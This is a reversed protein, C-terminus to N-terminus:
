FDCIISDAFLKALSFYMREYQFMPLPWLYIAEMQCGAINLAECFLVEGM